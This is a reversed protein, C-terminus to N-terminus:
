NQHGVPLQPCMGTFGYINKHLLPKQVNRKYNKKQKMIRNFIIKYLINASADYLQVFM